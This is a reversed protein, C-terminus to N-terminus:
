VTLDHLGAFHREEMVSLAHERGQEGHYWSVLLLAWIPERGADLLAVMLARAQEEITM